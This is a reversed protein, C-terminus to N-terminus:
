KSTLFMGIATIILLGVSTAISPVNGFYGRILPSTIEAIYSPGSSFYLADGFGAMLRSAYFHWKTKAYITIVWSATHPVVMFWFKKKTGLGDGIILLVGTAIFM